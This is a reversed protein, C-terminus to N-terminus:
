PKAYVTENKRNGKEDVTEIQVYYSGDKEQPFRIETHTNTTDSNYDVWAYGDRLDIKMYEYYTRSQDVKDYLVYKNLQFDYYKAEMAKSREEDTLTSDMDVYDNTYHQRQKKSLNELMQCQEYLSANNFKDYFHNIRIDLGVQYLRPGLVIVAVLLLAAIVAYYRHLKKQEYAYWFPKRKLTKTTEQESYLSDMDMDSPLLAKRFTELDEYRDFDYISAAKMIAESQFDM